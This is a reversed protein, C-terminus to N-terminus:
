GNVGKFFTPLFMSIQPFAVILALAILLMGLWPLISKSLEDLSINAIGCTVFLNVGLPPTIYGISLNVVMAIGFHVPDVGVLKAVPLLIPALINIAALAEMFCGVVLLLLMTLTMVLFASHSFASISHALTEPVRHIALIRGFGTACGIIIMITAGTLASRCITPLIDGWELDRYIFKGVIFGYGVAVAAAETPTFIGGYIGGLIVVPVLLAWKAQWVMRMKAALPMEAYTADGKYGKARSYAYAWLILVCGVLLGPFVGAMFMDSISVESTSVAYIIMPVSPPIIVGITGASAILGCAFKKDYGQRMMEPVMMCGVAAVTAPGSGSIAAFFMCAVVTVVATGGTVKGLFANAVDLLRKSIGGTSMLEGALVFFPVGMLPFNDLATTMSTAVYRLSVAGSYQIAVLSAMGLAIAIPARLILCAFLSSFLIAVTM